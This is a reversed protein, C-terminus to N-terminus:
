RALPVAVSAAAPPAPRPALTLTVRTVEGAKVTVKTSGAKLLPHWAHIVVGEGAPVNVMRFRGDKGSVTHVPHHFVMVDSRGCPAAFGCGLELVGPQELKIERTEGKLLMQLLRSKGLEPLFPYDTDNTLRITDGLTAAVVPPGIRCDAIRAAHAVPTHEPSKAFDTAGVVVNGLGRADGLLLPQRDALKPPSCAKPPEPQNVNVRPEYSPLESGDALRVVGEVIGVPVKAPDTSAPARGEGGCSGACGSLM